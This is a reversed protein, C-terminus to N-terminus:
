SGDEVVKDTYTARLMKILHECAEQNMTLTMSTGDALLTLTTAGNDDFGVRYHEQAKRPPKVLPVDPYGSPTPLGNQEPFPIVNNYTKDKSGKNKFWDFM